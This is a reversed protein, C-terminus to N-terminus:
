NYFTNQLCAFPPSLFYPPSIFKSTYWVDGTNTDNQCKGPHTEYIAEGNGELWQGMGRLREEFIPEIVEDKDPGVNLLLNGGCSVTFVLNTILEEM